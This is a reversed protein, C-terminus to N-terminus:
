FVMGMSFKNSGLSSDDVTPEMASSADTPYFLPTSTASSPLSPIEITGDVIGQIILESNSDLLAAYAADDEAISESYQRRYLWAVFKKAIAVRILEPTNTSNTWGSTDYAVAVRALVEVEIQNLMNTDNTAFTDGQGLADFVAFKTGEVWGQAEQVTIRTM